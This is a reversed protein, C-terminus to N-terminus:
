RRSRDSGSAPRGSRNTPETRDRLRAEPRRHRSRCLALPLASNISRGCSRSSSSRLCCPCCHTRKARVCTRAPPLLFAAEALVGKLAPLQQMPGHTSSSRHPAGHIAGDRHHLVVVTGGVRGPVEGSAGTRGLSGATSHVAALLHRVRGLARHPALRAEPRETLSPVVMVGCHGSRVRRRLRYSRLGVGPRFDVGRLPVRLRGTPARVRTRVAVTEHHKVNGPMFRSLGPAARAVLQEAVTGVSRKVKRQQSATGTRHRSHGYWVRRLAQLAIVIRWNHGWRPGM